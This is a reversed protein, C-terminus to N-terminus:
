PHNRRLEKLEDLIESLCRYSYKPFNGGDDGHFTRDILSRLARLENVVESVKEILRWMLYLGVGVAGGILFPHYESM